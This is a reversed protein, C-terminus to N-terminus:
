KIKVANLILKEIEDGANDGITTNFQELLPSLSAFNNRIPESTKYFVLTSVIMIHVLFPPTETFDGTKKGEEIIKTIIDIIKALDLIVKEPFHKGGSALERMMIPALHPHQLMAHSLSQIYAKLKEEPPKANKLSQDITRALNSFVKHIVEAYLAKKDGIHYYITAKNVGAQKAIEDMRAGAFGANSFVTAATALIKNKTEVQKSNEPNM